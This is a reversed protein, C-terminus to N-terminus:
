SMDSVFTQQTGVKHLHLVTIQLNCLYCQVIKQRLYTLPYLYYFKRTKQNYIFCILRFLSMSALLLFTLPIFIVNHSFNRRLSTPFEEFPM